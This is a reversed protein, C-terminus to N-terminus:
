REKENWQGFGIWACMCMCVCVLCLSLTNLRSRFLPLFVYVYIVDNRARYTKPNTKAQHFEWKSFICMGETRRPRISWQVVSVLPVEEHQVFVVVCLSTQERRTENRVREWLYEFVFASL